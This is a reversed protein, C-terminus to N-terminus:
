ECVLLESPSAKDLDSLVAYAKDALDVPLGACGCAPTILMRETLLAPDLGADKLYNLGYKIRAKVDSATETDIRLDNPVAGWALVGGKTLFDKLQASYLAMTEMYDVADFNIIRMSSDLLMGWDTNGCCHIGPIAGRAVAMQAVEDLAEIVDNRSVGLYASSGYASLCPEDFFVIIQEALGKFQDILWLAKLGMGKVAIDKFTEHYFIPKRKEDTITLAFSLPGTVQVKIVRPKTPANRLAELFLHIGKGYDPGIGFYDSPGGEVIELYKTYFTEVDPFFDGSTDFFYILNELNVMFRPLGETCQIWMQERLDARSLQPIHPAVSLSGLVLDVAAQADTHPMSGVATVTLKPLDATEIYSM